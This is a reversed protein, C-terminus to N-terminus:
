VFQNYIQQYRKIAIDRSFNNEFLEDFYKKETQNNKFYNFVRLAAEHPAEHVQKLDLLLGVPYNKLYHEMDGYNTNTVSNLHCAVLEAFKTPASAQKAFSPKIFFVCLNALNLYNAVQTFDADIIKYSRKDLQYQQLYDVILSHQGKNLFLFKINPNLESLATFLKLEAEFDVWGNLSGHHIVICDDQEFGLKQRLAQKEQPLLPKFLEVNACTPIVTIKEPKVGYREAIIPKSVHTLTVIHDAKKYTLAELKKLWHTVWSKEKLRGEVIKEDLAFGRIDFLLKTNKNKLFLGIVAPILSRAHIINIKNKRVITKLLMLARSIQWATSMLGFRNSYTFYRWTIGAQQLKNKIHTFKQTDTPKEFSLLFIHNEKALEVIYQVVQSEGLAETMGTMSIYLCSNTKM